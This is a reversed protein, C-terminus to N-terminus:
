WLTLKKGRCNDAMGDPEVSILLLHFDAENPVMGNQSLNPLTHSEGWEITHAALLFALKAKVHFGCPSMWSIQEDLGNARIPM